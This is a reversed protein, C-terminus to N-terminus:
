CPFPFVVCSVCSVVPLLSVAFCSRLIASLEGFRVWVWFGVLLQLQACAGLPFIVFRLGCFHCFIWHFIYLSFEFRAHYLFFFFLKLAFINNNVTVSDVAVVVAVALSKGRRTSFANILAVLPSLSLYFSRPPSLPFDRVLQM